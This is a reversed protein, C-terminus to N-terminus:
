KSHETSKQYKVIKNYLEETLKTHRKCHRWQYAHAMEHAIVHELAEFSLNYKGNFREDYCEHIFYNDITIKFNGNLPYDPNNSHFLGLAEKAKGKYETHDACEILINIGTAKVCDDCIKKLWGLEEETLEAPNDWLDLYKTNM